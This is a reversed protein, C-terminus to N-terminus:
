KMGYEILKNKMAQYKAMVVEEEGHLATFEEETMTLVARCYMKVDQAQTPQYCMYEQPFTPYSPNAGIFGFVSLKMMDYSYGSLGSFAKLLQCPMNGTYIFTINNPNVAYTLVYFHEELWEAETKFISGGVIEELITNKWATKEEETMKDFKTMGNCVVTNFGQYAQVQSTKSTTFLTDVLLISPVYIKRPILPLLETRLYELAPKVRERESPIVYRCTVWPRGVGPDYFVQLIEYFTYTSGLNSIREERGITDNYYVPIGTEQFIQYRLHDIEDKSDELVLWNKEYGSPTLADEKYCSVLFLVALLIMLQKKM